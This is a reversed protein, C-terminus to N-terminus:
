FAPSAQSLVPPAEEGSEWAELRREIPEWVELLGAVASATSAARLGAVGAPRRKEQSLADPAGDGV